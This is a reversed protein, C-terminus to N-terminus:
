KKGHPLGTLTGVNVPQGLPLAQAIDRVAYGLIEAIDQINWSLRKKTYGLDVYLSYYEGGSKSTARIVYIPM